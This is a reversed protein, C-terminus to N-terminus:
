GVTPPARSPLLFSIHRSSRPTSEPWEQYILEPTEAQPQEVTAVTKETATWECAICFTPSASIGPLHKDGSGACQHAFPAATSFWLWCLLVWIASIRKHIPVTM